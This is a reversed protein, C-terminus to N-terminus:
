IIPYRTSVAERAYAASSKSSCNMDGWALASTQEALKRGSICGSLDGYDSAWMIAGLRCLFASINNPLFFEIL